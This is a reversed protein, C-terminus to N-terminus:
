QVDPVKRRSWIFVWACFVTSHDATHETRTLKKELQKQPNKQM